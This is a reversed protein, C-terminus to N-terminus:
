DTRRAPRGAGIAVLTRVMEGARKLVGRANDYSLLDLAEDLTRWQCATIGEDVQPNALLSNSDPQAALEANTVRQEPAMPGMTMGEGHARVGSRGEGLQGTSGRSQAMALSPGHVEDGDLCAEDGRRADNSAVNRQGETRRERSPSPAHIAHRDRDEAIAGALGPLEM